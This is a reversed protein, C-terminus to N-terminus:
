EKIQPFVGRGDSGRDIAIYEDMGEREAGVAEEQGEEHSRGRRMRKREEGWGGGDGGESGAETNLQSTFMKKQLQATQTM